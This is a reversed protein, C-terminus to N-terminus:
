SVTSKDPEPVDVDEIAFKFDPGITPIVGAKCKKPIAPQFTFDPLSATSSRSYLCVALTKCNGKHVLILM